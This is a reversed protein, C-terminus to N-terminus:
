QEALRTNAREEPTEVVEAVKQLKELSDKKIAAWERASKGLDQNIITNAIVVYMEDGIHEADTALETHVSRRLTEHYLKELSRMASYNLGVVSVILLLCFGFGAALKKNITKKM